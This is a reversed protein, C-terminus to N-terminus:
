RIQKLNVGGESESIESMRFSKVFIEYYYDCNNGEYLWLSFTNRTIVNIDSKNVDLMNIITDNLQLSLFASTGNHSKSYECQESPILERKLCKITSFYKRATLLWLQIIKDDLLSALSADCEEGEEWM